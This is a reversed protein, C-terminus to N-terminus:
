QFLNSFLPIKVEYYNGLCEPFKTYCSSFLCCAGFCPYLDGVRTKAAQNKGGNGIKRAFDVAAASGANAADRAMIEGKLPAPDNADDYADDNADYVKPKQM